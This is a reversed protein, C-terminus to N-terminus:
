FFKHEDTGTHYVKENLDNKNEEREENMKGGWHCISDLTPVPVLVELSLLVLETGM